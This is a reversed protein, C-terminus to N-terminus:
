RVRRSALWNEIGRRSCLLSRAGTQRVFGLKKKNRWIWLPQCRLLAAAENVKLWEEAEDPKGKTESSDPVSSLTVIVAACQALLDSRVARPLTRVRSPDSLVDNLTVAAMM